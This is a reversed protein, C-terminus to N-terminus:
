TRARRAEATHADHIAKRIEAWAERETMYHHLRRQGPKLVVGKNGLRKYITAKMADAVFAVQSDTDLQSVIERFPAACAPWVKKIKAEIERKTRPQEARWRLFAAVRERQDPATVTFSM